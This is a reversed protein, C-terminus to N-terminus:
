RRKIKKVKLDFNQKQNYKNKIILYLNKLNYRQYDNSDKFIIFLSIM